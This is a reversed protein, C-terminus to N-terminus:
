AQRQARRNGDPDLPSIGMDPTIWFLAKRRAGARGLIQAAAAITAARRASRTPDGCDQSHLVGSGVGCPANVSSPTTEAGIRKGKPAALLLQGRFGRIREVHEPGPRSLTLLTGDTGSTTLVAVLADAPIAGLAGQAARIVRHTDYPSTNLDDLM